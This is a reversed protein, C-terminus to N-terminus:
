ASARRRLVAETAKDAPFFSEIALEAVTVDRPTGFTALISFFALEGDPSRLRIPLVM